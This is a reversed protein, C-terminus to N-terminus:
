KWKSFISMLQDLGDVIVAPGPQLFIEPELDFIRDEKIAKIDKWGERALVHEKEFKKGCWSALMIDPNAKIIQISDVFRGKALSSQSEKHHINIGGCLEIAESFWQIGCIMPDPWEEIYVKPKIKLSKGFEKAQSIKMELTKIYENVEEHAGVMHGLTSIYDLIESISRHNAIFVNLGRGILDKAIDKQIDSFGLVLDPKLDIIKELNASTFASVKKLKQAAEPRKVFASVGVILEEKGLAYLTEVSEETLCVIRKPLRSM